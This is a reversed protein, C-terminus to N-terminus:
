TVATFGGDIVVIQGTVFGNGEILGLMTEAVDEATAVRKLPTYRARRAMLGEYNEALTREM